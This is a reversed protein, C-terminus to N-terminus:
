GEQLLLGCKGCNWGHGSANSFYVANGAALQDGPCSCWRTPSIASQRAVPEFALVAKVHRCGRAKCRTCELGFSDRLVVAVNRNSEKAVVYASRDASNIREVPLSKLM